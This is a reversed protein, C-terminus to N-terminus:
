IHPAIADRFTECFQPSRNIHNVYKGTILPFKAAIKGGAEAFVLLTEDRASAANSMVTCFVDEIYSEDLGNTVSYEIAKAVLRRNAGANVKSLSPLIPTILEPHNLLAVGLVRRAVEDKAAEPNLKNALLLAAELSEEFHTKMRLQLLTGIAIGTAHGDIQAIKKCIIPFSHPSLLAFLQKMTAEIIEPKLNQELLDRRLLAAFGYLDGEELFIQFREIM